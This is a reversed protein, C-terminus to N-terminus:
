EDGSDRLLNFHKFRATIADEVAVALSWNNHEAIQMAAEMAEDSLGFPNVEGGQSQKYTAMLFELVYSQTVKKGTQAQLDVQLANFEAKFQDSVRPNFQREKYTARAQRGDIQHHRNEKYTRVKNDPPEQLQPQERRKNLIDYTM